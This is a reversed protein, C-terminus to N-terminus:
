IETKGMKKLHPLADKKSLHSKRIKSLSLGITKISFRHREPVKKVMISTKDILTVKTSHFGMFKALSCANAAIARQAQNIQFSSTHKTGIV